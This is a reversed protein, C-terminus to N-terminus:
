GGMQDSVGLKEATSPTIREVPVSVHSGSLSQNWATLLAGAVAGAISVYSAYKNFPPPLPQLIPFLAACASSVTTLVLGVTSKIQSGTM